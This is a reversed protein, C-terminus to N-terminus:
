PTPPRRSDARDATAPEVVARQRVGLVSRYLAGATRRAVWAGTGRENALVFTGDTTPTPSTERIEGDMAVVEARLLTVDEAIIERRSGESRSFM